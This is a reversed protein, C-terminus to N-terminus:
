KNKKLGNKVPRAPRPPAPLVLTREAYAQWKAALAEVREPHVAALNNLESRDEAMNYLEWEAGRGKAVLKWNGLRIARKSEHEWFLTDRNLSRGEFLPVLSLGEMPTIAKEKYTSPYVAGSIEVCTPMLDIVHGLQKRLENKATIGAPWHAILPTSIGGEHMWHKYERYPTNSVNAWNRGYGIYTDAPGPIIQGKLIPWGERTQKPESNFYHIVDDPIPKLTPKDARPVFLERRGYEEASGGNDQFFLLLTNDLQGKKELSQVLRGIGQDMQDVMAAYVEMCASEWRKNEVKDWDGVTPALRANPDVVGLAKMKKMRAERIPKYGADYRSRYKAIDRERAHMPWHAATYAVYMFFPQSADHEDIFQAANDSIADTLHYPEEPQYFLDNKCTILKNGRVLSNPDWLSSAGNIIGYFRDFGRQLPWNYKEADHKPNNHKTVHWKGVMYTAYGASSLVEAITVCRSNLDGRYGDLGKDQMMAGIGTQHPYLGTLLSARTPCCRGTNYFQTFRLGNEALRDLVPTEIESGYCGIDSYGMDDSMILIINPQEAATVSVMLAAGMFGFALQKNM